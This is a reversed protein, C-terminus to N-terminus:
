DGFSANWAHAFFVRLEMSKFLAMDHLDVITNEELARNLRCTHTNPQSSYYRRRTEYHQFSEKAFKVVDPLPKVFLEKIFCRPISNTTTEDRYAVWFELSASHASAIKM